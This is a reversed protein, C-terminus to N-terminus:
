NSAAMAPLHQIRGVLNDTYLKEVPTLALARATMERARDPQGSASLVEAWTAYVDSFNPDVETAKKFWAYSKEAHGSLALSFGWETYAAALTEVPVDKKWHAVVQAFKEMAEQHKGQRALVVGWNLLPSAFTPDIDLARQFKDIAGDKDAEQYLVIGWLNLMWKHSRDDDSALARHIINETKTFDRTLFDKKFQYAALLSPDIMRVAEYATKDILGPLDDAAATQRILISHKTSNDAGRLVMTLGSGDQVIEGSLTYPILGFSTQVVRLLPTLQFYDGLVAASGGDDQAMVEKADASTQAEQEIDAMRDALRKIVIGATYGTKATVVGPVSISEINVAEVNSFVALSFAALGTFFPVMLFGFDMM